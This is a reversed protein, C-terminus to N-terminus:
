NKVYHDRCYYRDNQKFAKSLPIFLHCTECPVLRENLAAPETSTTFARGLRWRLYIGLAKLILHSIFALLLLVILFRLM